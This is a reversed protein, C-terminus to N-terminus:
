VNNDLTIINLNGLESCYIKISWTSGNSYIDINSGTLDITQNTTFSILSIPNNKNGLSRITNDTYIIYGFIRENNNTKIVFTGKSEITDKIIIKCNYGISNIPLIYSSNNDLDVTIISNSDSDLLNYTLLDQIHNYKIGKVGKDSNIILKNSFITTNNNSSLSMNNSSDININNNDINNDINNSDISNQSNTNNTNIFINGNSTKYKTDGVIDIQFLDLTSEKLNSRLNRIYNCAIWGTHNNTDPTFDINNILQYNFSPESSLYYTNNFIKSNQIDCNDLNSSNIDLLSINNTNNLVSINSLDSDEDISNILIEDVELVSCHLKGKINLNQELINNNFLNDFEFSFDESNTNNYSAINTNITQNTNSVNESFKNRINKSFNELNFKNNM